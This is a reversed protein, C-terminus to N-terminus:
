GGIGGVRSLANAAYVDLWLADSLGAAAAHSLQPVAARGACARVVIRWVTIVTVVM